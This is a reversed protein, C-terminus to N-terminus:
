GQPLLVPELPCVQKATGGAAGEAARKGTTSAKAKPLTVVLAAHAASAAEVDAASGLMDAATVSRASLDEREASTLAGAGSAVARTYLALVRQAQDAGPIREEM